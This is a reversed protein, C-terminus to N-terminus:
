NAPASASEELVAAIAARVATCHMAQRVAPPATSPTEFTLAHRAGRRALALSYSLGGLLGAERAADAVIRGWERICHADDLPGALGFTVELPDIAFQKAELAAIVRRGVEGGGYEYCYFGTADCDEHLDISLLLSQRRLFALAARAERTGGNGGFSRNVDAGRESERTRADFGTPNMCPLIRYCLRGDLADSEVLELLAWPGAPEDGHVGAAIAIAPLSPDGLEIGLLTKRGESTLERVHLGARESLRRWRAALESYTGGFASVCGGSCPDNM